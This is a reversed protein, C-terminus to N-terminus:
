AKASNQYITISLSHTNLSSSKFDNIEKTRGFVGLNLWFRSHFEIWTGQELIQQLFTRYLFRKFDNAGMWIMGEKKRPFDRPPKWSIIKGERKKKRLFCKSRTHHFFYRIFWYTRINVQYTITQIRMIESRHHNHKLAWM